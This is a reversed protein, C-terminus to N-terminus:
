VVRTGDLQTGTSEIERVVGRNPDPRTVFLPPPPATVDRSLFQDFGRTGTYTLSASTAKM